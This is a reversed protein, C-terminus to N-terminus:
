HGKQLYLTINAIHYLGSERWSPITISWRFFGNVSDFSGVGAHTPYTTQTSNSVLTVFM